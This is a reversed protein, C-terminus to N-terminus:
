RSVVHRREGAGSDRRAHPNRRYLQGKRLRLAGGRNVDRPHRRLQGCAARFDSARQRGIVLVSADTGAVREILTRVHHMADSEGVLSMMSMPTRDSTRGRGSEPEM